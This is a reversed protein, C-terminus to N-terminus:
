PDDPPGPHEDVAVAIILVGRFCENRQFSFFMEEDNLGKSDLSFTVVDGCVSCGRCEMCATVASVTGFVLQWVM